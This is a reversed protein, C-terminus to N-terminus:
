LIRKKKAGIAFGVLENNDNFAGIAIGEKSRIISAYFKTLFNFGLSTLFFEKFSKEHIEAIISVDSINLDRIEM